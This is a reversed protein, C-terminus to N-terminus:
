LLVSRREGARCLLSSLSLQTEIPFISKQEIASVSNLPKLSGASVQSTM